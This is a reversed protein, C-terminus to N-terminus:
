SELLESLTMGNKYLFSDIQGLTINKSQKDYERLTRVQVGIYSALIQEDIDNLQQYLRIKCWIYKYIPIRSNNKSVNM